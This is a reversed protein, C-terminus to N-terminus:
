SPATPLGLNLPLTHIEPDQDQLERPKKAWLQATPESTPM